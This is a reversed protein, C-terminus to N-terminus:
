KNIYYFVYVLHDKGRQFECSRLKELESEASPEMNLGVKRIAAGLFNHELRRPPPPLHCNAM